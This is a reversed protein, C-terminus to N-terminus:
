ARIEEVATSPPPSQHRALFPRLPDIVTQMIYHHVSALWLPVPVTRFAQPVRRGFGINPRPTIQVDVEAGTKDLAPYRAIPARREVPHWFYQIDNTTLNDPVFLSSGAQAFLVVDPLRHKDQIDFWNLQWLYDNRFGDGRKYPQLDEIIKKAGKNIGRLMRKSESPNQQKFIPFGSDGEMSRSVRGGNNVLALELALNDLAARLNHVCDGVILNLYAPPQEVVELWALKYFVNVDFDSWIRYPREEGWTRTEAKLSELYYLARDLRREHHFTM